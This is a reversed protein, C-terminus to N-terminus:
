GISRGGDVDLCVGTLFSADDSALFLVSGAVDRPEARRGMPIGAVVAAEFDAPMDAGFVNRDFSTSSSVPCVANVRIRPALETAVGRVLTIVAGKASNYATLRPRPRRAGISATAVISGGDPMYPVCHKIALFVSRVNLAFMHDFDEVSLDVLDAIEHAAGANACVVDIGGFADRAAAAMAENDSEQTVDVRRAVANPLEAAVREVAEGNIDALLVSAGEAAFSRAIEAGFGSGAGTVIVRKGEFRDM